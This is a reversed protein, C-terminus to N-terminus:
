EPQSMAGPGYVNALVDIRGFERDLREFLAEIQVLDTTDCVLPIVRRGLSEIQGATRNVGAEDIDLLILDAGVEAFGLAMAQGMGAAAGSVVAVRERLDFLPHTM